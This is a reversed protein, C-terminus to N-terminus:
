MVSMEIIINFHKIVPRHYKKKIRRRKKKKKDNLVTFIM